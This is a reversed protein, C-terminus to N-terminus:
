YQTLKVKRKEWKSIVSKKIYLEAEKDIVERVIPHALATLLLEIWRVYM